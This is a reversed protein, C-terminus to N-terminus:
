CAHFHLLGAAIAFRIIDSVLTFLGGWGGSSARPTKIGWPSAMDGKDMVHVELAALWVAPHVPQSGKPVRWTWSAESAVISHM